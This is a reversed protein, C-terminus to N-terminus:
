GAFLHSLPPYAEFALWTFALLWLTYKMSYTSKNSAAESDSIRADRLTKARSILSDKVKSGDAQALTLIGDLDSLEHMGIRTGLRGLAAWATIGEWRPVTITAEQLLDFAWGSGVTAATPLAENYDRGGDLSMAVLDLWISLARRMEARRAQAKEHLDRSILWVLVVAAGIGLILALEPPFPIAFLAPYVLGVFLGGLLGIVALAVVKGMHEGMNVETIEADQRVSALDRGSSALADVIREVLKDWPTNAGQGELRQNARSRAKDWRAIGATLNTRPPLALRWMQVLGLALLVALFVFATM